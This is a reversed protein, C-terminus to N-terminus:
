TACVSPPRRQPQSTPCWSSFSSLQPPTTLEYRERGSVVGGGGGGEEKPVGAEGSLLGEEWVRCRRGDWGGGERAERRDGALYFNIAETLVRVTDM